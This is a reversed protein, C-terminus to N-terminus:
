FIRQLSCVSCIELIILQIFPRCICFNCRLTEGDVPMLKPDRNLVPILIKDRAENQIVANKTRKNNNKKFSLVSETVGTVFFLAASRLVFMKDNNRLQAQVNVEIYTM